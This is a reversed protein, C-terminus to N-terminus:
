MISPGRQKGRARTKTIWLLHTRLARLTRLAPSPSIIERLRPPASFFKFVYADEGSRRHVHQDVQKTVSYCSWGTSGSQRSLGGRRQTRRSFMRSSQRLRVLGRAQIGSVDPEFIAKRRTVKAPEVDDFSPLQHKGTKPELQYPKARRRTAIQSLREEARSSDLSPNWSSTGESCSRLDLVWSSRPTSARLTRRPTHPCSRKAGRNDVNPPSV